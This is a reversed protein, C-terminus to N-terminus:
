LWLGTISRSVDLNRKAYAWLELGSIPCLRQCEDTRKRSPLANPDTELHQGATVNQDSNCCIPIFPTTSLEGATPSPTSGRDVILGFDAKACMGTAAMLLLLPEIPHRYTTPWSVQTVYFILPYFVFLIVTFVRLPHPAIGIGLLALALLIVYLLPWPRFWFEAFRKVSRLVFGRPDARIFAIAKKQRVEFFQAEGIKPLEDGYASDPRWYDYTGSMGAHNGLYLELGLNDRLAPYLHGMVRYNRVYWPALVALATVAMVIAQKRHIWVASAPILIGLMPNLLLMIGTAAGLLIWNRTSPALDPVYNLWLMLALTSFSYASLTLDAIAVTPLLAWTWGAIVGVSPSLYKCGARHVFFTTVGGILASVGVIVYLSLNSFVGFLWFIGAVFIPYLPPQQASPLPLTTFPSAFGDGRVLHAAIHSPENGLFHNGPLGLFKLVAPILLLRFAVGLLVMNRPNRLWRM